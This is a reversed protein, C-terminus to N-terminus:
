LNSSLSKKKLMVLLVLLPTNMSVIQALVSVDDLSEIRAGGGRVLAIVHFNSADLSQLTGILEKANSFNARYEAFDIASKAANIGAEFDSM